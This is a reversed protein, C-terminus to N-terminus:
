IKIQEAKIAVPFVKSLAIAIRVELRSGVIQLIKGEKENEFTIFCKETPLEERNIGNMIEGKQYIREFDEDSMKESKEGKRKQRRKLCM